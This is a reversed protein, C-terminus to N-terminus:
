GLVRVRTLEEVTLDFLLDQDATMVAYQLTIMDSLFVAAIAALLLLSYSLNLKAERTM